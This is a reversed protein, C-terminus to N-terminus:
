DHRMDDGLESVPVWKDAYWQLDHWYYGRWENENKNYYGSIFGHKMQTLCELDEDPQEYNISRWNIDGM